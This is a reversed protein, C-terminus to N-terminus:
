GKRRWAHTLANPRELTEDSRGWTAEVFFDCDVDPWGAPRAEDVDVDTFGKAALAPRLKGRVISDPVFFPVEVCGRYRQDQELEVDGGELAQWDASSTTAHRPKGGSFIWYVLIGWGLGAGAAVQVRRDRYWKM